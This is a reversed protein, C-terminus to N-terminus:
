SPGLAGRVNLWTKRVHGCARCHYTIPRGPLYYTRGRCEPCRAPLCCAAFAEGVGSGLVAGGLILPVGVLFTVAVGEVGLGRLALMTGLWAVWGLLGGGFFCLVSCLTTLILHLGIPM